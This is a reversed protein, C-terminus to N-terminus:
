GCRGEDQRRKRGDSGVRGPPLLGADWIRIRVRLPRLASAPAFSDSDISCSDHWTLGIVGSGEELM